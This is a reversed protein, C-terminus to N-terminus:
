YRRLLAKAEEVDDGNPELELYKQLAAKGLEKQNADFHLTALLIQVQGNKPDLELVKDAAARAGATDRTDYKVLGLLTWGTTSRPDDSLVQELISSAKRYQGAEYLKRAERLNETVDIPAPPLPEEDVVAAEAVVPVQPAVEVPAPSAAIEAVPLAPAPAPTPTPNRMWEVLVTLAIIGLAGAVLPVTRAITKPRRAVPEDAVDHSASPSAFFSAEPDVEGVMPAVKAAPLPTVPTMWPTEIRAQADRRLAPARTLAQNLQAELEPLSSEESAKLLASEMATDTTLSAPSLGIFSQAAAVEVPVRAAEVKMSTQFAELQLALEPSLGTALEDPV